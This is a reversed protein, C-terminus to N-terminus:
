RNSRMRMCRNSLRNKKEMACIRDWIDCLVLKALETERDTLDIAFRRDLYVASLMAKNNILHPRRKEFENLLCQALDTKNNPKNNAIKLKERMGIAAGYFDSLTCGKKQLLKTVEYPIKLLKTAERILDFKQHVAKFACKTKAFHEIM